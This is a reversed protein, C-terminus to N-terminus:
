LNCKSDCESPCMAAHMLCQNPAAVTRDFIPATVADGSGRVPEYNQFMTAFPHSSGAGTSMCGSMGATAAVVIIMRFISKWGQTLM